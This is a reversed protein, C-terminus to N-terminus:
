RGARELIRVIGNDADVEVLDGDHLIQTAVKTGIICPKRLERAVIAAHCTIGGEDTIIASVRAFVPAYEPTTMPAVIIDGERVKELEHKNEVVKVIGRVIERSKYASVGQILHTDAVETQILGWGRSQLYSELSDERVEGDAFLFHEKRKLLSEMFRLHREKSDSETLLEKIEDLVLFRGYTEPDEFGNAHLAYASIKRLLEETAPALIKDVRSRTELCQGYEKDLEERFDGYTEDIQQPFYMIMLFRPLIPIYRKQLQLFVELVQDADIARFDAVLWKKLFLEYVRMDSLLISSVEQIFDGNERIKMRICQFMGDIHEERARYITEKKGDWQFVFDTYGWHYQRRFEHIASINALECYAISWDRFITPEFHLTNSLEKM